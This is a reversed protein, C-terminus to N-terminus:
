RSTRLSRCWEDPRGPRGGAGRSSQPVQARDGFLRKMAREAQRVPFVFTDAVQELPIRIRELQGDEGEEPRFVAAVLM